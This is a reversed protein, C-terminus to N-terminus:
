LAGADSSAREAEYLDVVESWDPGEYTIDIYGTGKSLGKLEITVSGGNKIEFHSGFHGCGDYELCQYFEDYEDYLEMGIRELEIEPSGYKNELIGKLETYIEKGKKGTIDNNIDDGAMRIKQLNYEEDFVLDYFDAKSYNEPLSTARYFSLRGSKENFTLKVGLDEVEPASQGWTLGFPADYAFAVTHFSVLLLFTTKKLM